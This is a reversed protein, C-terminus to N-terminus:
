FFSFLKSRRTSKRRRNTRRKPRRSKRGKGGASCGIVNINRIIGEIETNTKNPFYYLKNGEETTIIPKYADLRDKNCELIKILIYEDDDKGKVYITEM